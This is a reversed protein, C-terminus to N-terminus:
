AASSSRRVSRRALALLGVGWLAWTAPEPVPVATFVTGGAASFDFSEFRYADARAAFGVQAFAVDDLGGFAGDADAQQVFSDIDFRGSAQFANPDTDGLFRFEVLLSGLDVAAGHAFQVTDIDFGGAGDAQVELILRSGAGASFAGNVTFLGPSSGPSFIGYNLLTGSVNIAGASGGLYGNTGIVVDTANLTAGNLVMTGTGGDFHMGTTTDLYRGVGVWGADITSGGTAVVTGDSGAFRGVYLKGDGLNLASADRM